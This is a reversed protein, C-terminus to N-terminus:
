MTNMVILKPFFIRLSEQVYGTNNTKLWFNRVESGKMSLLGLLVFFFLRRSVGCKTGDDNKREMKYRWGKLVRRKKNNCGECKRGHGEDDELKKQM